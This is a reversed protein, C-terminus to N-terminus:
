SESTPVELSLRKSRNLQFLEEFGSGITDNCQKCIPRQINDKGSSIVFNSHKIIKGCAGQCVGHKM